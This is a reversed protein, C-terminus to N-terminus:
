SLGHVLILQDDVKSSFSVNHCCCCHSGAPPFSLTQHLLITAHEMDSDRVIAIVPLHCIGLATAFCDAVSLDNVLSVCQM